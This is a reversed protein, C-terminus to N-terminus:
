GTEVRKRVEQRKAEVKKNAEQQAQQGRDEIKERAQQKAQDSVLGCGASFALFVLVALGGVLARLKTM